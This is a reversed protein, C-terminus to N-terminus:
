NLIAGLFYAPALLINKGYATRAVIQCFLLKLLVYDIVVYFYLSSFNSSFSVQGFDTEQEKTKSINDLM